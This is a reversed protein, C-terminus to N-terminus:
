IKLYINSQSLGVADFFGDSEKFWKLSKGQKGVINIFKKNEEKLTEEYEKIIM